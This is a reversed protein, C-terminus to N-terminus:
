SENLFGRVANMTYGLIKMKDSSRIEEDNREYLVARAQFSTAASVCMLVTKQDNVIMGRETAEKSVHDFMVQSQSDHICKFKKGEEVLLHEKRMNVKTLHAGDDIFKLQAPARKGAPIRQGGPGHHFTSLVLYCM